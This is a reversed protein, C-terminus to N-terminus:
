THYHLAKNMTDKDVRTNSAIPFFMERRERACVIKGTSESVMAVHALITRM